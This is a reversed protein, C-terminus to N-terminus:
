RWDGVKEEHPAPAGKGTEVYAKLSVLFTAWKTSCHHMFELPERWGRHAFMIITYDGETRLDWSIQTGIWEGPGDVVEWLVREAPKAELVSMDFGDPDPSDDFRFRFQVVGGADADGRVDSTWWGELGETTTLAQYVADQSATIGVRHLIDVM